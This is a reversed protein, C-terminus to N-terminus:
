WCRRLKIASLCCVTNLSKSMLSLSVSMIGKGPAICMDHVELNPRTMATAQLEAKMDYKIPMLIADAHANQVISM